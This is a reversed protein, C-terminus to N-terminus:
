LPTSRFMTAAREAAETLRRGRVPAHISVKQELGARLAAITAGECPRPDFGAPYAGFGDRQM